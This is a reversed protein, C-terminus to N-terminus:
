VYEISNTIDEVVEEDVFNKKLHFAHLLALDCIQNVKRPIGKSYRFISELSDTNFPSSLRGAVNCRHEIYNKVESQSLAPLHYGLGIRQAFAQMTEIRRKLEPQGALILTLLFTQNKQYNYFLRLQEFVKQNKIIQAEDVIVVLHLGQNYLTLLIEELKHLLKYKRNFSFRKGEIQYIIEEIFGSFSLPPNAILAVKYQGDEIIKNFLIQTLLTKGSGLEGTLVGIGKKEKVTYYLRLVAERHHSSYYIFKPNVANEFPKEKFQWYKLYM